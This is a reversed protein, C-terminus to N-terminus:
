SNDDLIKNNNQIYRIDITPVLLNLLRLLEVLRYIFIFFLGYVSLIELYPRNKMIKLTVIIM